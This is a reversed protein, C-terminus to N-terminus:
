KVKKNNITVLVVETDKFVSNDKDEIKYDKEITFAGVEKKDDVFKPYLEQFEKATDEGYMIELATIISKYASDSLKGDQGIQITSEDEGVFIDYGINGIKGNQNGTEKDKILQSIMDLENEKLYFKNMDILPVKKSINIKLSVKEDNIVLELGEKDLTYNKFEDTFTNINQSLEGDNYGYTQGVGNIVLLAAMLDNTSLKENSLVDGDLKFEVKSEKDETKSTITLTDKSSTAKIDYDYEKYDKVSKCNNIKNVIDDLKSNNGCGTASIIVVLLLALSLIKKKVNKGEKEILKM